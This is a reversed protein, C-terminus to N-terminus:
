LINKFNLICTCTDVKVEKSQHSNMLMLLCMCKSQFLNLTLWPTHSVRHESNPSMVPSSPTQKIDPYSTVLSDAHIRSLRAKLDTNQRLAQLGCCNRLRCYWRLSVLDWPSHETPGKGRAPEAELQSCRQLAPCPRQGDGTGDETAGERHHHHTALVEPEPSSCLYWLYSTFHSAVFIM